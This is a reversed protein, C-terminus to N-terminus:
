KSSYYYNGLLFKLGPDNKVDTAGERVTDIKKYTDGNDVDKNREICYVANNSGVQNYYYTEMIYAKTMSTPNDYAFIKKGMKLTFTDDQVPAAYSVGTNQFTSLGVVAISAIAFVAVVFSLVVSGNIVSQKGRKDNNDEM